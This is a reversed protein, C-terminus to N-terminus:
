AKRVNFDLKNVCVEALQMGVEGCGGVELAARPDVGAVETM